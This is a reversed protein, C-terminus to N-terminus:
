KEKKLLKMKIDDYIYDKLHIENRFEREINDLDYHLDYGGYSSRFNSFCACAILSVSFLCYSLVFIDLATLKTVVVDDKDKGYITAEFYDSKNLEEESLNNRVEKQVNTPNGLSEELINITDNSDLIKEVTEQDLKKIKYTKITREYQNNENLEWKSLHSVTNYDLFLKNSYESISSENGFSDITKETVLVNKNGRKIGYALALSSLGFIIAYPYIAKIYALFRKKLRENKIKKLENNYSVEIEEISQEM